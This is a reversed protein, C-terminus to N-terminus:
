CRAWNWSNVYLDTRQLRRGSRALTRGVVCLQGGHKRGRQYSISHWKSLFSELYQTLNVTSVFFRGFDKSGGCRSFWRINDLFVLGCSVRLNTAFREAQSLITFKTHQRETWSIHQDGKSVRWKVESIKEQGCMNSVVIKFGNQKAHIHDPWVNGIRAFMRSKEPVAPIARANRRLFGAVMGQRCFFVGRTGTRMRTLLQELCSDVQTNFIAASITKM